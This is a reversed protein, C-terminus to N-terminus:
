RAAEPQRRYIAVSRNTPQFYENAVRGMFSNALDSRGSQISLQDNLADQLQPNLTTNQTWATVAQGTAPDTTANANWTTSGYPTNQTPRNAWTQMNTIEKSAGAQAQAAGTYDPPPPASGKGM